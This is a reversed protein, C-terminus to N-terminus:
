EAIIGANLWSDVLAKADERATEMTVEYHETLLLAIDEATFDRGEVQKWLWAASDNLNIIKSFNINELGQAVIVNTDCISRLKFGDKIRM